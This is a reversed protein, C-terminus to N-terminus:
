LLPRVGEIFQDLRIRLPGTGPCTGDKHQLAECARNALLTTHRGHKVKLMSEIIDKIQM